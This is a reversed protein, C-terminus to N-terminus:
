ASVQGSGSTTNLPSWSLSVAESCPNRTLIPCSLMKVSNATMLTLPTNLKRRTPTRLHQLQAKFWTQSPALRLYPRSLLLVKTADRTKCTKPKHFDTASSPPIRQNRKRTLRNLNTGHQNQFPQQSPQLARYNRRTSCWRIMTSLIRRGPNRGAGILNFTGRTVGRLSTTSFRVRLM